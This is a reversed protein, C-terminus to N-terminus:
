MKTFYYLKNPRPWNEDQPNAYGGLSLSLKGNAENQLLVRYPPENRFQLFVTDSQLMYNSTHNILESSALRYYDTKPYGVPLPPSIDFQISKTTSAGFKKYLKIEAKSYSGNVLPNLLDEGAVNKVVLHISPPPSPRPGCKCCSLYLCTIVVVSLFLLKKM